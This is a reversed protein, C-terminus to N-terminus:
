MILLTKTFSYIYINKSYEFAKEGWITYQLTDNEDFSHKFAHKQEICYM